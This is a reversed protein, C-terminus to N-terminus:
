DYRMMIPATTELTVGLHPNCALRVFTVSGGYLTISPTAGLTYDSSRCVAWNKGPYLAVGRFPIPIGVGVDSGFASPNENVLVYSWGPSMPTQSAGFYLALMFTGTTVSGTFGSGKTIISAKGAFLVGDATDAGTSDKTREIGCAVLYTIGNYGGVNFTIRNTDASGYLPQSATDQSNNSFTAAAVSGGDFVVGTINGAGDSGTGITIWVGLYAAAAGSGYAIKVFVPATAQLADNMRWVEYGQQTNAAAPKVVTTLNIQGTDSTQVWGLAFTDHIHQCWQRFLADTNSYPTMTTTTTPM